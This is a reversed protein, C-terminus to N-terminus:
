LCFGLFTMFYWGIIISLFGGFYFISGKINNKRTFFLAANGVGIMVVIGMIFALNGICLFGRDLFWLVGLFYFISGLIILGMGIKKNDDYLLDM